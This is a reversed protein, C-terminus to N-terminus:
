LFEACATYVEEPRISQLCRFDKYVCERQKCPRCELSKELIRRNDTWPAVIAPINPGFLAVIPTPTTAAIHMPGSDAGIFVSARAILERLEILNIRGVLSRAQTRELIMRAAAEDERGGVLVVKSQKREQLIGALAALNETGWERFRNGAGIHLVVIKSGLLGGTRIFREIKEAEDKEPGPLFLPPMEPVEVGLAKVLNVHNVVSHVYGEVPKRPIVADYLFGKNRIQYGVKHGAGSFFTLWSARPGGHFDILADYRAARIRRVLDFFGLSPSRRLGSDTERRGDPSGANRRSNGGTGLVLVDALCPNGEVLRRFPEEVVYTLSAGPLAKKLATVAPTTLV